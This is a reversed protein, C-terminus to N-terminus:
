QALVIIEGHNDGHRGTVDQAIWLAVLQRDWWEETLNGNINPDKGINIELWAWATGTGHRVKADIGAEALAAKVARTEERHTSHNRWM